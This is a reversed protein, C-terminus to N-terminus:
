LGLLCPHTTWLDVYLVAPLFVGVFAQLLANPTMYKGQSISKKRENTM